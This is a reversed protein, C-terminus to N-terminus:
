GELVARHCGGDRGVELGWDEVWSLRWEELGARCRDLGAEMGGFWGAWGVWGEDGDRWGEMGGDRWGEMGGDRWGEMGGDRWGEMGGGRWGEIGKVERWRRVL